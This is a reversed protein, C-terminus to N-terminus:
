MTHSVALVAIYNKSSVASNNSNIIHCRPLQLKQTM